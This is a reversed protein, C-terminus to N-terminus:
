GVPATNHTASEFFERFPGPPNKRQSLFLGLSKVMIVYTGFMDEEAKDPFRLAYGCSHEGSQANVKALDAGCHFEDNPSAFLRGLTFYAEGGPGLLDHFQGHVLGPPHVV